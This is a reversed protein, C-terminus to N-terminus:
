SGNCHTLLAPFPPKMIQQLENLVSVYHDRFSSNPQAFEYFQHGVDIYVVARGQADDPLKAFLGGHNLLQQACPHLISAGGGMTSASTSALPMSLKDAGFLKARMEWYNVLLKAADWTNYERARLFRVPETETIVLGGAEQVAREYMAKHSEPIMDVGEQLQIAASERMVETEVFWITESGFDGEEEICGQEDKEGGSDGDSRKRKLSAAASAASASSRGVLDARIANREEVTLSERERQFAEDSFVPATHSLPALM